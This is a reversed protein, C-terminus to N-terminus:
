PGLYTVVPILANKLAHIIMVRYESLGKSRATKIYDQNLVDL